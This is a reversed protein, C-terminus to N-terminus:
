NQRMVLTHRVSLCVSLCAAQLMASSSLFRLLQALAFYVPRWPSEFHCDVSHVLFSIGVASNKALLTGHSKQLDTAAGLSPSTASPARTGATFSTGRCTLQLSSSWSRSSTINKIKRVSTTHWILELFWRYPTQSKRCFKVVSVAIERFSAHGM